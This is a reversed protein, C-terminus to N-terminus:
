NIGHTSAPTEFRIRYIISIVMVVRVCCTWSSLSSWFCLVECDVSSKRQNMSNKKKRSCLYQFCIPIKEGGDGGANPVGVESEKDEARCVFDLLLHILVNVYAQYVEPTM